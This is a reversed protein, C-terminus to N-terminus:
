TNEDTESIQSDIEEKVPQVHKIQVQLEEESSSFSLDTQRDM